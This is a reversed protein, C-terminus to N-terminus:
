WFEDDEDDEDDDEMDDNLSGLISREGTEPDKLILSGDQEMPYVDTVDEVNDEEDDKDDEDDVTFLDDITMAKNEISKTNDNVTDNNTPNDNFRLMGLVRATGGGQKKGRTRYVGVDVFSACAKSSVRVVTAPFPGEAVQLSNLDRSPTV